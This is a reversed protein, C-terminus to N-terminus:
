EIDGEADKEAADEADAEADEEQEIDGEADEEAGDYKLDTLNTVDKLLTFVGSRTGAYGYWYQTRFKLVRVPKVLRERVWKRSPIEHRVFIIIHMM